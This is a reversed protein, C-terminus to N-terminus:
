GRISSSGEQVLFRTRATEKSCLELHNLCYISILYYRVISEYREILENFPKSQGSPVVFWTLPGGEVLVFALPLMCVGADFPILSM